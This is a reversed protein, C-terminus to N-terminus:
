EDTLSNNLTWIEEKTTEINTKPDKVIVSRVVSIFTPWGTNIDIFSTIYGEMKMDLKAMEDQFEKKPKAGANETTKNIYTAYDKLFDKLDAYKETDFRVEYTTTDISSVYLYCDFNIPKDGWVGPVTETYSLTDNIGTAYGHLNHFQSVFVDYMSTFLIKGNALKETIVTAAKREAENEFKIKDQRNKVIIKMLADMKNEISTRNEYTKLTGTADTTYRLILSDENLNLDELPLKPDTSTDRLNEVISYEIKYSTETSDAIRFQVIGDAETKESVLSDGEYKKTKKKARFKKIEGNKWEAYIRISSATTDRSIWRVNTLQQAKTLISSLLLFVTLILSAYILKM